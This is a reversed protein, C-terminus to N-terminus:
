VARILRLSFLGGVLEPMCVYMRVGKRWVSWVVVEGKKEPFTWFYAASGVRKFGLTMEFGALQPQFKEMILPGDLKSYASDFNILSTDRNLPKLGISTSMQDFDSVAPVKWGSPILKNKGFVAERTYLKGLTKGLEPNFKPYAFGPLNKIIAEKVKKASKLEPIPSGDLFEAQNFNFRMWETDGFMITESFSLM